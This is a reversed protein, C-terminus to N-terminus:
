SYTDSAREGEALTSGGSEYFFSLADYFNALSSLYEGAIEESLEVGYKKHFYKVTRDILQKSFVFHGMM